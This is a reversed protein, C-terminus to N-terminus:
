FSEQHATQEVSRQLDIGVNEMESRISNAWATRGELVLQVDRGDRLTIRLGNPFIRWTRIPVVSAINKLTFSYDYVGLNGRHSCFRLRTNTLFLVGGASEGQTFINGIGTRVIKEDKSWGGIDHLGFLKTRLILARCILMGVMFLTGVISGAIVAELANHNLLWDMTGMFGGFALFAMVSPPVWSPLSVRSRM